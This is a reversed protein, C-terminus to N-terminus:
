SVGFDALTRRAQDVDAAIAGITQQFLREAEARRSQESALTARAQELQESARGLELCLRDAAVSTEAAALSSEACHLEKYTAGAQVSLGHRQVYTDAAAQLQIHRARATDAAQVAATARDVLDAPLGAFAGSAIIARGRETAAAEAAMRLGERQIRTRDAAAEDWAPQYDAVGTQILHENLREPWSREDAPPADVPRGDLANLLRQTVPLTM